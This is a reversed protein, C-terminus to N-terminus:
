AGKQLASSSEILQQLNLFPMTQLLLPNLHAGAEEATKPAFIGGNAATAGNTENMIVSGQPLQTVKSGPETSAGLLFPALLASASSTLPRQTQQEELKEKKAQQQRTTAAAKLAEKLTQQLSLAMEREKGEDSCSKVEEKGDKLYIGEESDSDDSTPM